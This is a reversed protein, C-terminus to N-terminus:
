ENGDDESKKFDAKEKSVIGGCYLGGSNFAGKMLFLFDTMLEKFNDDELYYEDIDAIDFSGYEIDGDAVGNILWYEFVEEDNVQRALFEMAVIAKRRDFMEREHRRAEEEAKRREYDAKMAEIDKQTVEAM